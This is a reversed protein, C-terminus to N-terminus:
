KKKTPTSSKPVSANPQKPTKINLGASNIELGLENGIQQTRSIYNDAIKNLDTTPNGALVAQNVDNQAKLRQELTLLYFLTYVQVNQYKEPANLKLIQALVSKIYAQRENFLRYLGAIDNKQALTNAKTDDSNVKSEFDNMLKTWQEKYTAEQQSTSNGCGVILFILGVIVLFGVLRFISKNQM